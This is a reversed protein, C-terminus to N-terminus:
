RVVYYSNDYKLFNDWDNSTMNQCSRFEEKSMKLTRYTSGNKRITFTRASKNATSKTKM